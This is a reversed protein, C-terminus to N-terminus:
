FRLTELLFMGRVPSIRVLYYSFNTLLSSLATFPHIPVLNLIFSSPLGWTLQFILFFTSSFPALSDQGSGLTEACSQSQVGECGNQEVYAPLVCVSLREEM